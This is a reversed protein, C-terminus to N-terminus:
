AKAAKQNLVSILRAVTEPCIEGERGHSFREPYYHRHFATVVDIFATMPNYGFQVFLKETEFDNAAIKAAKEHEEVTPNPWYGIGFEALWRWNFLEGPDTKREPAVDSHGLFNKINHRSMIELSLDKVAIMQEEPFPRYGHEHGPNVIEIGISHSNIDTEKQWYSVGAHWARKDEPVLPYVTGDEDILYHASVESNPETLRDKAEQMTKMGTYHMLLISPEIGKPRDQYNLPKKKWFMKFFKKVIQSKNYINCGELTNINELM